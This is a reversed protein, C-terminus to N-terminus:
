KKEFDVVRARASYRVLTLNKFKKKIKESHGDIRGGVSPIRDNQPKRKAASPFLKVLKTLRVGGASTENQTCKNHHISQTRGWEANRESRKDLQMQNM